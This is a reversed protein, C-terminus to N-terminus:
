KSLKRTYNMQQGDAYGDIHSSWHKDKKSALAALWHPLWCGPPSGILAANLRVVPAWPPLYVLYAATSLWLIFFKFFLLYKEWRLPGRYSTCWTHRQAWGHFLFTSSCYTSTEDRPGVTLPVDPMCYLQARGCFLSMKSFCASRDDRPGVNSPVGPISSHEVM